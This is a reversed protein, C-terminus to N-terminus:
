DEYSLHYARYGGMFSAIIEVVLVAMSSVGLYQSDQSIRSRIQKECGVKYDPTFCNLNKLAENNNKYSGYDEYSRVGCCSFVKQTHLWFQSDTDDAPKNNNIGKITKNLSEFLVDDDALTKISDSYQFALLGDVLQVIIMLAIIGCYTKLLFKNKRFTALLAVFFSLVLVGAAAIFLGFIMDLRELQLFDNDKRAYTVFDGFGRGFRLIFGGVMLGGGILATCATALLFVNDQQGIHM